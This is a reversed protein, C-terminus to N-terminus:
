PDKEGDFPVHITQCVVGTPQESERVDTVSQDSVDTASRGVDGEDDVASRRHGIPSRYDTAVSRHDFRDVHCRDTETTVALDTDVGSVRLAGYQEPGLPRDRNTAKSELKWIDM